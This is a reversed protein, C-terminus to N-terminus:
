CRLPIIARSSIARPSKLTAVDPGDAVPVPGIESQQTLRPDGDTLVSKMRYHYASFPTIAHSRSPASRATPPLTAESRRVALTGVRMRSARPGTPCSALGCLVFLLLLSLRRSSM